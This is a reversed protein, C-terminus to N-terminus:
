RAGKKFQYQGGENIEVFGHAVLAALPADAWHPDEEYDSRRIARRAIERRGFCTERSDRLFNLIIQEDDNMVRSGLLMTPGGRKTWHRASSPHSKYRPDIMDSRTLLTARERRVPSPCPSPMKPIDQDLSAPVSRSGEGEVRRLLAVASSPCGEGM